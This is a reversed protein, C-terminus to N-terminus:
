QDPADLAAHIRSLVSRLTLNGQKLRENETRAEELAVKLGDREAVVVNFNAVSVFGEPPWITAGMGAKKELEAIRVALTAYNTDLQKVSDSLRGVDGTVQFRLLCCECDCTRSHRSM